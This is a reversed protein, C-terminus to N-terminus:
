DNRKTHEPVYPTLSYDILNGGLETAKYDYNNEQPAGYFHYLNDNNRNKCIVDDSDGAIFWLFIELTIKM